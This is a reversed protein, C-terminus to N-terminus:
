FFNVILIKCFHHLCGKINYMPPASEISSWRRPNSSFSRGCIYSADPEIDDEMLLLNLKQTLLAAFGCREANSQELVGFLSMRRQLKHRFPLNEDDEDSSSWYEDDEDSCDSIRSLSRKIVQYADGIELLEQIAKFYLDKRTLRQQIRNRVVIPAVSARRSRSSSPRLVSLDGFKSREIEEGEKDETITALPKFFISNSSTKKSRLHERKQEERNIKAQHLRQENLKRRRLFENKKVTDMVASRARNRALTREEREEEKEKLLKQILKM